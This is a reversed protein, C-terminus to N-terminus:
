FVQKYIAICLALFLAIAGSSSFVFKGLDQRLLEKDYIRSLQAVVKRLGNVIRYM